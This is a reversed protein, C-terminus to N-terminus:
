TRWQSLLTQDSYSRTLSISRISELPDDPLGRWTTDTTSAEYLEDSEAHSAHELWGGRRLVRPPPRCRQNVTSTLPRKGRVERPM